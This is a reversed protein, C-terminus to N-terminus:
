TLFFYDRHISLPHMTPSGPEPYSASKNLILRCLVSCARVNANIQTKGPKEPATYGTDRRWTRDALSKSVLTQPLSEGSPLTCRACGSSRLVTVSAHSCILKNSAIITTCTSFSPLHRYKSHLKTSILSVPLCM